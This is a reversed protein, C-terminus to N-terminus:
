SLPALASLLVDIVGVTKAILSRMEPFVTSLRNAQYFVQNGIATRVVLEAAALQEMERQVAGASVGVQRAIQRLYFQQDARGYLLGLVSSRTRGFLVSALTSM